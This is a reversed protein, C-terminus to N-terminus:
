DAAPGKGGDGGRRQDRPAIACPQTHSQVAHGTLMRSGASSDRTHRTQVKLEHPTRGATRVAGSRPCLLRPRRPAGTRRRWRSGMLTAVKAVARLLAVRRARSKKSGKKDQGDLRPHGRPKRAVGDRQLGATSAGLKGRPALRWKTIRQYSPMSLGAPTAQLPQRLGRPTKRSGTPVVPRPVRLLRAKSCCTKSPQGTHVPGKRRESTSAREARGTGQKRMLHQLM